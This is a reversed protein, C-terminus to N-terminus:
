NELYCSDCLTLLACVKLVIMSVQSQEKHSSKTSNTLNSSDSSVLSRRKTTSEPSGSFPASPCILTPTTVSSGGQINGATM